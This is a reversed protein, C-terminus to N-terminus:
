EQRQKGNDLNRVHMRKVGIGVVTRKADQQVAGRRNRNCRCYDNQNLDLGAGEDILRARHGAIPM